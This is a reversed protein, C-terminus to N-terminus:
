AFIARVPLLLLLRAMRCNALIAPLIPSHHAVAAVADIAHGRCDQGHSRAIPHRLPRLHRCHCPLYIPCRLRVM